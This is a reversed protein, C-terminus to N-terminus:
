LRRVNNSIRQTSASKTGKTNTSRGPSRQRTVHMEEYGAVQNSSEHPGESGFGYESRYEILKVSQHTGWTYPEDYYSLHKDSVGWEDRRDWRTMSRILKQCARKFIRSIQEAEPHRKILAGTTPSGTICDPATTRPKGHSAIISIVYGMKHCAPSTAQNLRPTSLDSGTHRRENLVPRVLGTDWHALL